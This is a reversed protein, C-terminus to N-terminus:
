TYEVRLGYLTAAYVYFHKVMRYIILADNETLQFLSCKFKSKISQKGLSVGKGCILTRMRTSKVGIVYKEFLGLTNRPMMMM